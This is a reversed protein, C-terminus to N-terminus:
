SVLLANINQWQMFYPLELCHAIASAALTVPIDM